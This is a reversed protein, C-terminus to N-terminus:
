GEAVPLERVTVTSGFCPGIAVAGVVGRYDGDVACREQGDAHVTMRAPQIEWVIEHWEGPRIFGQDEIGWRKGSAPDHVRLERISCEWNFIIEGLHWYLRLNTSDTRAVARYRFPARFTRTSVAVANMFNRSAGTLRLGEDTQEIVCGFHPVLANLLDVPM